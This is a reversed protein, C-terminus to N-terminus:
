TIREIRIGQRRGVLAHSLEHALVSAFFSVAAVLAVSWRLARSWDPHWMPLIQWGLSTTVMAFIVLLSWDIVIDIGAIRGLRFGGFLSEAVYRMQRDDASTPRAPM